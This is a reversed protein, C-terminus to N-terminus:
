VPSHQSDSSPYLVCRSPRTAYLPSLYTIYLNPFCHLRSRESSHIYAIQISKILPYSQAIQFDTSM